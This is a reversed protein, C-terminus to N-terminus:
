QRHNAIEIGTDWTAFRHRGIGTSSRNLTMSTTEMASEVNIRPAGKRSEPM